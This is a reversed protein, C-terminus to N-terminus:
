ISFEQLPLMLNARTRPVLHHSISIWKVNNALYSIVQPKSL